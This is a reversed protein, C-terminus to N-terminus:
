KKRLLDVLFAPYYKVVRDVSLKGAKILKLTQILESVVFSCVGGDRYDALDISKYPYLELLGVAEDISESSAIKKVLPSLRENKVLDQVTLPLRELYIQLDKETSSLALNIQSVLISPNRRFVVDPSSGYIVIVANNGAQEITQLKLLLQHINQVDKMLEEFSIEGGPKLDTEQM